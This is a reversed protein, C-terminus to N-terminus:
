HVACACELHLDHVTEAGAIRERRAQNVAQEVAVHLLADIPAHRGAGDLVRDGAVEGPDRALFDLRRDLAAAQTDAPSGVMNRERASTLSISRRAMSSYPTGPTISISFA